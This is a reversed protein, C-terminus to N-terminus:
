VLATRTIGDQKLRAALWRRRAEEIVQSSQDGSRPDGLEGVILQKPVPAAKEVTTM